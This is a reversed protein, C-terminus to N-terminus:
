CAAPRAKPRKASGSPRAIPAAGGDRGCQLNGLQRLTARLHSGKLHGEVDGRAFGESMLRTRIDPLSTGEHALQFAREVLGPRFM